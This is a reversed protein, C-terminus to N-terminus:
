TLVHDFALVVENMPGVIHTDDVLSPFVCSPAQVITKVLAQFHTLAFLLDGLPDGWNM